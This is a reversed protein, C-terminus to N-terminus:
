SKRYKLYKLFFDVLLLAAVASAIATTYTLEPIAKNVHTFEGVLLLGTIFFVMMVAWSVDVGVMKVAPKEFHQLVRQAVNVEKHVAMGSKIAEDVQLELALRT